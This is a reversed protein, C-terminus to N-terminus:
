GYPDLLTDLQNELTNLPNLNQEIDNIVNTVNGMFQQQNQSQQPFSVNRM